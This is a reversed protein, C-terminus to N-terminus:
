PTGPHPDGPAKEISSSSPRNKRWAFLRGDKWQELFFEANAAVNRPTAQLCLDELVITANPEDFLLLMKAAYARVYADDHALLSVLSAQAGRAELEDYANELRGLAIEFEDRDADNASQYGGMESAATSFQLVYSAIECDTAM